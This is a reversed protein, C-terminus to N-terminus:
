TTTRSIIHYLLIARPEARAARMKVNRLAFMPDRTVDCGATVFACPNLAQSTAACSRLIRGRQWTAGHASTASAIIRGRRGRRHM